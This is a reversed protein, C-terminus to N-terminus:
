ISLTIRLLIYCHEKVKLLIQQYILEAPQLQGNQHLAIGEQLKPETDM